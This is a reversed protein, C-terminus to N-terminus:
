PKTEEGGVPPGELDTVVRHLMADVSEADRRRGFWRWPGHTEQRDHVEDARDRTFVPEPLGQSRLYDQAQVMLDHRRDEPMNVLVHLAYQAEGTHMWVVFDIDQVAWDRLFYAAPVDLVDAIATIAALSPNKQAGKLL